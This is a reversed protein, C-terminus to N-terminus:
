NFLMEYASFMQIMNLAMDINEQEKPTCYTKIDNLMQSMREQPDDISCSQIAAAKGNFLQATKQLEMFKIMMAFMRQQEPQLYPVMVKMIQLNRTQLELDFPTYTLDNEM